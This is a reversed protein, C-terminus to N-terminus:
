PTAAIYLALTIITVFSASSKVFTAKFLKLTFAHFLNKNIFCSVPAASNNSSAPFEMTNRYPGTIM